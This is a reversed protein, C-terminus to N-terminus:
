SRHIAWSVVARSEIMEWNMDRGAHVFLSNEKPLVTITVAVVFIIAVLIFVQLVILYLNKCEYYMYM